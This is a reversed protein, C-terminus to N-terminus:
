HRTSDTRNAKEGVVTIVRALSQMGVQRPHHDRKRYNKWQHRAHGRCERASFRGVLGERVKAGIENREERRVQVPVPVDRRGRDAAECGPPGAHWRIVRVIDLRVAELQQLRDLSDKRNLPHEARAVVERLAPFPLERSHLVLDLIQKTLAPLRHPAHAEEVLVKLACAQGHRLAQPEINQEILEVRRELLEVADLEEPVGAV